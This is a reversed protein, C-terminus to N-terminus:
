GSMALSPVREQAGSSLHLRLLKVLDREAPTLSRDGSYIVFLRRNITPEVIMHASLEGAVIEPMVASAPLVTAIPERTLLAILMTLADIEHRPRIEIGAARASADLLQRLGFLSTPLALPLHALDALRVPGPPLLAYRPNAIVALEESADLALRPMQSLATEVIALGVRGGLVLNQLTGNPAERVAVSMAPYQERLALVAETIRNVLHGHHSVSPLIGLSLRGGEILSATSGSMALERLRRDLLNTALAFNASTKTRVLGFTRRDFLTTGLSDELKHLQQSLAPQAVSAARAAASVRGLEYALNFYRIRRGTLIPEFVPGPGRDEFAAKLRDVFRLATASGDTRAVLTASLPPDLPTANIRAVGLRPAIASEPLLFACGSHEDLLQPWDGPAADLAQLTMRRARLHAMLQDVVAPQFAPVVLRQAAVAGNGGTEEDLGFNRSVVMWPDERLAIEGAAPDATRAVAEVVVSADEDFGLMDAGATGFAAGTELPWQPDVLVLPEARATEATAKGLALRFQGFAFRLRVDVRLRTIPAEPSAAVRRCAFAEMLLLPVAARYLWHALRKPSLGAGQKRFLSGGFDTELAKLSASLTSPAIGLERAAAGLNEQECAVVFYSLSRFDIM